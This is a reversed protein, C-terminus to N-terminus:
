TKLDNTRLNSVDESIRHLFSRKKGEACVKDTRIVPGMFIGTCIPFLLCSMYLQLKTYTYPGINELIFGPMQFFTQIISLSFAVRLPINEQRMAKNSENGIYPTLRSYM